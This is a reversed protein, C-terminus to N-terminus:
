SFAGDLEPVLWGEASAQIKAQEPAANVLLEYLRRRSGLVYQARNILATVDICDHAFIINDPQRYWSDGPPVIIDAILDSLNFDESEHNAEPPFHLRYKKTDFGICEIRGLYPSREEDIKFSSKEYARMEEEWIDRLIAAVTVLHPELRWMQSTPLYSRSPLFDWSNETYVVDYQHTNAWATMLISMWINNEKYVKAYAKKFWDQWEEFSDYQGSRKSLGDRWEGEDPLPDEAHFFEEWYGSVIAPELLESSVKGMKEEWLIQCVRISEECRSYPNSDKFQDNHRVWDIGSRILLAPFM